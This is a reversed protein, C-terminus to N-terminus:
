LDRKRGLVQDLAVSASLIVGLIVKQMTSPIGVQEMGNLISAMLLAGLLSMWVNGTGGRLSTGGIVCAAIAYLEQYDGIDAAGAMLQATAVLGALWALLGMLVFVGLTHMPISIGSYQAAERNSGMAFVHRGFRTRVALGHCLAAASAMALVCVPVGRDANCVAVFLLGGASPALWALASRWLPRPALGHKRRGALNRWLLFGLGLALLGACAYGQWPALYGQGLFLFAENQIPIVPNAIYQKLGTYAMLGSLTVIFAPIRPYAVLAGHILGMLIALAIGAALTVPLPLHAQYLLWANVAGLLGLGAGVSLDIHGAAMVFTMGTALIGVVTLYKFLNVMNGASLVSGGSLFHFLVWIAPITLLIALTRKM